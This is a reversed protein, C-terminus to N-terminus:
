FCCSKRIQKSVQAARAPNRLALAGIATLGGAGLGTWAIADGLDPQDQQQPQRLQAKRWQRVAPALQAQSKKDKPVPTGTAEAYAYFDTPSVPM